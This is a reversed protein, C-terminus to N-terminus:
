EEGSMPYSMVTGSPLELTRPDAVSRQWPYAM